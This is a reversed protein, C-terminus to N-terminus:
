VANDYAPTTDFTNLSISDNQRIPVVDPFDVGRVGGLTHGCAVLAIMEEPTFGQRRFTEKHTPLPEFPQPVGPPGAQTADKRGARFNLM